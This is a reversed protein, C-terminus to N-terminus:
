LQAVPEAEPNEPKSDLKALRQQLRTNLKGHLTVHEKQQRERLEVESALAKKVADLEDRFMRCAERLEAVLVMDDTRTEECRDLRKDHSDIRDRHEFVEAGLGAIRRGWMVTDRLELRDEAM